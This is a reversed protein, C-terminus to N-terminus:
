RILILKKQVTGVDTVLRLFYVGSKGPDRDWRLSGKSSGSPIFTEVKRGLADFVLLKAWRHNDPLSYSIIIPPGAPNPSIKLDLRDVLSSFEFLSVEDGLNVRYSFTLEDPSGSWQTVVPVIVLTDYEWGPITIRGTDETTELLIKYEVSTNGKIGLVYAAWDYNNEGDFFITVRQSDFDALQIFDCGGPGSPDCTDEDGTAPYTNHVRLISSERYRWGEEFHIGDDRNGTFYRWIAYHSLAKPLDSDFHNRLTWDIDDITHEGTHLGCREWIKIPAQSSYYEHLFMPWLGGRYEYNGEECDIPFYTEVLPNNTSDNLIWSLPNLDDYVIEEMYESTNERFWPSEWASYRFQCGHHFEHAVLTKLYTYNEQNSVEAWSTYGDPYPNTYPDEPWCMGIAGINSPNRIYFDYLSDGGNNNDPPPLIWGLNSIRVRSTEAYVAVSEAYQWTTSDEGSTTYHVRFHPTVRCYEPGSLKPRGRHVEPSLIRNVGCWPYEHDSGSNESVAPPVTCVLFIVLLLM